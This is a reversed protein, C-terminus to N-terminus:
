AAGGTRLHSTLLAAAALPVFSGLGLGLGALWWDTTAVWEGAPWAVLVVGLNVAAVRLPWARELIRSLRRNGVAGRGFVVPLLYTLAGTLTQLAFGVAVVPVLRGLQGDLEVVQPSGALTALDAAVAVAFWGMGAALMVSAATHPSRRLATRVVPGHARRGVEADGSRLLPVLADLAGKTAAWVSEAQRHMTTMRRRAADFAVEAVRPRDRGLEERTLGLKGALALLAGETPDGTLEWRGDPRSPPELAADNCAAAVAGLRRLLEDTAPDVGDEGYSRAPRPM